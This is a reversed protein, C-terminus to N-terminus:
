EQFAGSFRIHKAPKEISHQSAVDSFMDASYNDDKFGNNIASQTKSTM